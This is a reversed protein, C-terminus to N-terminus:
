RNVSSIQRQVPESAAHPPLPERGRLWRLHRWIKQSSSLPPGVTAIIAPGPRGTARAELAPAFALAMGALAPIISPTLISAPLQEIKLMGAVQRVMSAHANTSAFVPVAALGTGALQAEGEPTLVCAASGDVVISRYLPETPGIWPLPHGDLTGHTSAVIRLGTADACYLTASGGPLAVAVLKTLLPSLEMGEATSSATNALHLAALVSLPDSDHRMAIQRELATCHTRLNRAYDAIAARQSTLESVRSVLERKHAIQRMRFQGVLVAAGIWLIPEIWVKLLYNFYTESTSQEPFGTGVTLAIAVGAAVLGSITGYQVSLLLVPVWFPHPRIEALEIGPHFWDGLVLASYLVAIELFAALPPLVPLM